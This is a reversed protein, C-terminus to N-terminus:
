LYKMQFLLMDSTTKFHLVTTNFVPHSYDIKADVVIGADNNIYYEIYIAYNQRRSKMYATWLINDLPSDRQIILQLDMSHM